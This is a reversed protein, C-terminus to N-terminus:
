RSKCPFPATSSPSGWSVSCRCSSPSSLHCPGSARNSSYSSGWTPQNTCTEKVRITSSRHVSFSLTPASLSGKSCFSKPLQNRPGHVKFSVVFVVLHYVLTGFSWYDLTQGTGFFAPDHQWLLVSGFFIAVAHWLGSLIWRSDLCHLEFEVHDIAVELVSLNKALQKKKLDRM